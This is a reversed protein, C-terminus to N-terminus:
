APARPVVAVSPINATAGCRLVLDVVGILEEVDVLSGALLGRAAWVPHFESFLEM